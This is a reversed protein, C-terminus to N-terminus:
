SAELLQETVWIVDDLAKAFEIDDLNSGSRAWWWLLPFAATCIGNRGPVQMCGWDGTGRRLEETGDEKRWQPNMERWWSKWGAAFDTLSPLEEIRRTKSRWRGANIWTEVTSPRNVKTLVKEERFSYEGELTVWKAIFEGWRPPADERASYAFASVMWPPWSTQDFGQYKLPLANATASKSPHPATKGAKTKKPKPPKEADQESGNQEADGRDRSSRKRKRSSRPEPEAHNEQDSDNSDEKRRKNRPTVVARDGATSQSRRRRLGHGVAVPSNVKGPNSQLPTTSPETVDLGRQSHPNATDEGPSKAPTAPRNTSETRPSAANIDDHLGDPAHESQGDHEAPLSTTRIGDDIDDPSPDFNYDDDHEALPPTGRSGDSPQNNSGTNENTTTAIESQEPGEEDSSEVLYRSQRRKKSATGTDGGSNRHSSGQGKSSSAIPQVSAM